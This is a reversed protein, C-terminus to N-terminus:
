FIALLPSQGDSIVLVRLLLALLELNVLGVWQRMKMAFTM